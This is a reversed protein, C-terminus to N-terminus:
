GWASPPTLNLQYVTKRLGHHRHILFFTDLGQVTLGKMLAKSLLYSHPPPSPMRYSGHLFLYHVQRGLSALFLSPSHIGPERFLFSHCLTRLLPTLVTRPCSEPLRFNSCPSHFPLSFNVIVNRYCKLSGVPCALSCWLHNLAM